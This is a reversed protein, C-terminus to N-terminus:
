FPIEPDFHINAKPRVQQAYVQKGNDDIVEFDIDYFGESAAMMSALKLAYAATMIGDRELRCISRPDCPSTGEYPMRSIIRYMNIEETRAQGASGRVLTEIQGDKVIDILLM